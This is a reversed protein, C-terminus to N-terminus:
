RKTGFFFLAMTGPGSHSGIVPGVFNIIINKVSTRKRIWKALFKAEEECDGHSIFITQDAINIAREELHEALKILSAKRGKVKEVHILQGEDNVHLIPKIGLISGVLATTASIRGGRKLHKLDNVTFWHCLQLKNHEVWARVEEINKGSRKQLVAHYILMGQGLSASLSDVVYIKRNPYSASLEKAAIEASHHTTSLASSFCICLIDKEQELASKMATFFSATNVAATSCQAGQRLLRYFEEFPIDSGDLYNMYEHNNVNVSLPLVTVELESALQEPLDCCSDTMIIFNSMRKRGKSILM